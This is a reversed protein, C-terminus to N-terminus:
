EFLEDLEVFKLIIINNLIKSIIHPIDTIRTKGVTALVYKNHHFIHQIKDIRKSKLSIPNHLHIPIDLRHPIIIIHHIYQKLILNILIYRLSKNQLSIRILFLLIVSNMLNFNFGTLCDQCIMFEKHYCGFFLYLYIAFFGLYVLLGGLFM